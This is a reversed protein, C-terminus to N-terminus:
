GHNGGEIDQRLGRLEELIGTLLQNVNGTEEKEGRRKGDVAHGRMRAYLFNRIEDFERVGVISEEASSSGSATQIKVTGLGLWREFINRSVHIDQIRSYTLYSEKRWLIGYSVAVGEQDFRYRLTIYHFYLPVFVFPFAVNSLLSYILYLNLLKDDPRTLQYIREPDVPALHADDDHHM